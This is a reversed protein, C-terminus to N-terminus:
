KEDIQLYGAPDVQSNDKWVEFHIQSNESTEATASSSATGIVDGANVSDGASVKVDESLSKYVTKLNNGHNITIVTGDIINTTVSEVTGDYCAMVNAGSSVSFDIGKHISWENLVSNYQLATASYNKVITANAVPMVFEIVGTNVNVDEQTEEEVNNISALGVVLGLILVIGLISLYYGYKQLFQKIGGKKTEQKIEDM